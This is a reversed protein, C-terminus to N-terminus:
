SRPKGIGSRPALASAAPSKMKSSLQTVKRKRKQPPFLPFMCKKWMKGVKWKASPSSLDVDGIVDLSSKMPPPPPLCTWKIECRALKKYLVHPSPSLTCRPQCGSLNEHPPPTPPPTHCIKMPFLLHVVNGLQWTESIYTEGGGSIALTDLIARLTLTGTIKVSKQKQFYKM